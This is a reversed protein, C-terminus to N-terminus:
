NGGKRRLRIRNNKVAFRSRFFRRSAPKIFVPNMKQIFPTGLSTLSALHFAVAMVGLFMGVAGTLACLLLIFLNILRFAQSLEESPSCFTCLATFAVVIVSIPSVFGAEVAASGIILGGVIGIANGMEGPTRVGAEQLLAFSAEMVLIELTASFPTDAEARQITLFLETPILQNEYSAALVYAGPFFMSFLSAGYRLMRFFGAVLFNVYRDDATQFFNQYVTPLLLVEPSNDVILVARGELLEEAALAPRVTSQLQPFLMRPCDSLLQQEVGSDTIGDLTYQELREKVKEALDPKVLSEMYMLYILTRTRKGVVYQRVKLEPTKIRKRLLAANVKVSDSFCESSGRMGKEAEAKTVGLGPYGTAPIKFAGAIGEVFLIVDGAFFGAIAEEYTTLSSCDMLGSCANKLRKIVTEKEENQFSLMMQSLGYLNGATPEMFFAIGRCNNGLTIERKVIDACDGLTNNMVEESARLESKIATSNM